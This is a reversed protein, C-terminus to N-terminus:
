VLIATSSLSLDSKAAARAAFSSAAGRQAHKSRIAEAFLDPAVTAKGVGHAVPGRLDLVLADCHQRQLIQRLIAEAPVLHGSETQRGAVRFAQWDSM